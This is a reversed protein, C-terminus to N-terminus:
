GEFSKSDEKHKQKIHSQESLRSGCLGLRNRVSFCPCVTTQCEKRPTAWKNSQKVKGATQIWSALLTSM